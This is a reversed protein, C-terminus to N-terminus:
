DEAEVVAKREKKVKKKEPSATHKKKPAAVKPSALKEAKIEAKRAMQKEIADIGALQRKTQRIKGKFHRIKADRQIEKDTMGETQLTQLREALQKESKAQHEQIYAKKKLM